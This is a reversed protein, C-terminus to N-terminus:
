EYFQGCWLLDTFAEWGFDDLEFVPSNDDGDPSPVLVVVEDAEYGGVTGRVGCELYTTIDFNYWTAGSPSRVGFYRHKDDLTGDEAMQHLEVIQFLITQEWDVVFEGSPEPPNAFRELWSEDFPPVDASLAAELMEAVDDVEILENKRPLAVTWLARLYDELPRTNDFSCVHEYLQRNTMM